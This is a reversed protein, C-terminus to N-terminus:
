PASTRNFTFWYAHLTGMMDTLVESGVPKVLYSNAGLDYARRIDSEQDSSTLVAVPTRRTPEYARMFELVEFGSRRPLKLDLLVLAARHSVSGHNRDREHCSRLYSIAAEGDRIVTMEQTAGIRRLARTTLETDDANDEVLLISVADDM